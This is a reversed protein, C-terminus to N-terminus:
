YTWPGLLPSDTMGGVTAVIARPQLLQSFIYFTSFCDPNHFSLFHIQYSKNKSM